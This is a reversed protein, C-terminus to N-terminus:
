DIRPNVCGGLGYICPVKARSSADSGQFQGSSTCFPYTNISHPNTSSFHVSKYKFKMYIFLIGTSMTWM